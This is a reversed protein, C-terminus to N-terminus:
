DAVVHHMWIVTDVCSSSPFFSCTTRDSLDSKWIVSLRGIAIWTKVLRTNIDNETSSASSGLYNFKDVQKLSSGNLTSIDGIQNFCMYETNEANVHLGIDSAAQELCHLTSDARAPTNALRAIDDAYDM